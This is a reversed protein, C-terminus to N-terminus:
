WRCCRAACRARQRFSSCCCAEVARRSRIAAEIRQRRADHAVVGAANRGVERWGVVDICRGAFCARAARRDPTHARLRRLRARDGSDVVRHELRDASGDCGSKSAHARRSCNIPRRTCRASCWYVRAWASSTSGARAAAVAGTGARRRRRDALVVNRLVLGVVVAADRRRLRLRHFAPRADPQDDHRRCLSAVVGRWRCIGGQVAVAHRRRHLDGGRRGAVRCDSGTREPLIRYTALVSRFDAMDKLKHASAALFLWGLAFRIITAIVPDLNM